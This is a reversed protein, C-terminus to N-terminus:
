DMMQRLTDVLSESLSRMKAERPDESSQVYKSGVSAKPWAVAATPSNSYTPRFARGGGNNSSTRSSSQAQPQPQPWVAAVPAQQPQVQMMPVEAEAPYVGAVQQHSPYVMLPTQPAVSPSSAPFREIQVGMTTLNQETRSLSSAISSLSSQISELANATGGELDSIEDRLNVISTALGGASSRIQRQIRDREATAQARIRDAEANAEALIAESVQKSRQDPNSLSSRAADRESTVTQLLTRLNQLETNQKEVQTKLQQAEPAGDNIQTRMQQLELNLRNNEGSLQTRETNVQAKLQQLEANLRSNEGMLQTRETNVQSRLQQVETTRAELQQNLLAAQEDGQWQGASLQQLQQNLYNISEEAHQHENQYWANEQQFNYLQERLAALEDESQQTAMQAIELNQSMGEMQHMADEYAARLQPDASAGGSGSLMRSEATHLRQSLEQIRRDAVEQRQANEDALEELYELVEEKNFGFMSSGFLRGNAQPAYQDYEFDINQEALLFM